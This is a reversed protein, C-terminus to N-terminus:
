GIKELELFSHRYPNKEDAEFDQRLIEKWKKLNILPLFTDGPFDHHIRTLYIKDASNLVQLIIEAGGIIFIEDEEKCLDIAEQLSNVVICNPVEYNLQHTIIINTRGPLPKGISEYTKRGMVVPHGMTIKKFLKLDAPLRWPLQNKNGIVNNASVAVIVSLKL